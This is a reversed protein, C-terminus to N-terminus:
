RARRRRAAAPPQYAPDLLALALHDGTKTAHEKLYARHQVLTEKFAPNHAQNVLEGPDNVMDVLSERRAGHSYLCYKYRDSRVMRGDPIWRVGDVPDGQAMRNSVVLYRRWDELTGGNAITRLSAGPLHAPVPIGTYDCLTPILDVGTHVLVRSTGAKTVGKQALIFPVRTAEDYFVTKQNWRHAGQCDGHDSTVIVVTNEEQQTERLATLVTAIETDVKEIMRYYAWRYQRWTAPSFGSVPFRSNSQFSRRMFAMTDTENEPPLHNPILPPCAEPPPPDGIPGEPLKEGRAWQCIDHPNRFSAVLLFPDARKKRIFAAALEATTTDRGKRAGPGGQRKLISFGHVAENGVPL